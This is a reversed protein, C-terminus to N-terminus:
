FIFDDVSIDAALDQTKILLTEDEFTVKVRGLKKAHVDFSLDAGDSVGWATIDIQDVGIEFDSITDRDADAVLVFTDAGGRGHMNDRGAGDILTDAQDAGFLRDDGEFGDLMAATGDKAQIRDESQTGIVQEISNFSYDNNQANKGYIDGGGSGLTVKVGRQPNFDSFDVLDVGDGGRFANGGDGPIFVDNGNGGVMWNGGKGGVLTDDGDGGYLADNDGSGAYLVDDGGGGYIRDSGGRGDIVDDYFYGEILNNAATGNPATPNEEGVFSFKEETFVFDSIWESPFGEYYVINSYSLDYYFDDDSDYYFGSDDYVELDARFVHKLSFEVSGDATTAVDSDFELYEDWRYLDNGSFDGGFSFSPDSAGSDWSIEDYYAYSAATTVFTMQSFPVEVLNISGDGYFIRYEFVDLRDADDDEFGFIRRMLDQKDDLDAWTAQESKIVDDIGDGNFDAILM